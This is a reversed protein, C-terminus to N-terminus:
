PQPERPEEGIWQMRCRAYALPNRHFVWRRLRCWRCLVVWRIYFREGASDQVLAGIGHGQHDHIGAKLPDRYGINYAIQLWGRRPHRCSLVIEGPRPETLSAPQSM